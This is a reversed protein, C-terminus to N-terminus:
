FRQKGEEGKKRNWGRKFYKLHNRGGECGGKARIWGGVTVMYM